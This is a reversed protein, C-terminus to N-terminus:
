KEVALIHILYQLIYLATSPHVYEHEAGHWSSYGTTHMVKKGELRAHTRARRNPKQANNLLSKKHYINNNQTACRVPPSIAEAADVVQRPLNSHVPTLLHGPRVLSIRKKVSLPFNVAITTTTPVTATTITITIIM